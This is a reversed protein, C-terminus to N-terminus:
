TYIIVYTPTFPWCSNTFFFNYFPIFIIFCMYEWMTTEFSCCKDYWDVPVESPRTSHITGDIAKVCCIISIKKLNLVFRIWQKKNLFVIKIFDWVARENILAPAACFSRRFLLFHQSEKKLFETKWRPRDAWLASFEHFNHKISKSSVDGTFSKEFFFDKHGLRPTWFQDKRNSQYCVILEM